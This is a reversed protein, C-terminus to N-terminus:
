PKPASRAELEAARETIREADTILKWRSARGVGTRRVQGATELERLLDRVQTNRANADKAIAVANLGDTSDRLMAELRGALLVEVPKEPKTVRPGTQTRPQRRAVAPKASPESPAAVPASVAAAADGQEKATSKEKASSARRRRKPKTAAKGPGATSPRGRAGGNAHLAARAAQLSTMETRLEDIRAEISERIQESSPM